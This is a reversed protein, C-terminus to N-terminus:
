GQIHEFLGFIDAIPAVFPQSYRGVGHVDQRVLFGLFIKVVIVGHIDPDRVIGVGM